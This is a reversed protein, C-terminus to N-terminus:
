VQKLMALYVNESKLFTIGAEAKKSKTQSGPKVWVVRVNFVYTRPIEELLIRIELIEEASFENGAVELCGGTESLNCIEGLIPSKARQRYIKTKLRTPYRQSKTALM